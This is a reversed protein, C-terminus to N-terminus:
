FIPVLKPFSELGSEDRLNFEQEMKWQSNKHNLYNGWSPMSLGCLFIM